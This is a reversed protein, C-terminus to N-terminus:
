EHKGHNAIFRRSASVLQIDLILRDVEPTGGPVNMRLALISQLEGSRFLGKPPPTAERIDPRFM